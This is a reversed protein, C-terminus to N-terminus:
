PSALDRVQRRAVQRDGTRDGIVPAANSLREVLLRLTGDHKVEAGLVSMNRHAVDLLDLRRVRLAHKVDVLASAVAEIAILAGAVVRLGCRERTFAGECEEGLM